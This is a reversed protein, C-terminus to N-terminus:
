SSQSVDVKAARAAQTYDKALTVAVARLKKSAPDNKKGFVQGVKWTNGGERYLEATAREGTGRLSFIRTDGKSCDGIYREGGVCHKMQRGEAQLTAGSTLPTASVGDITRKDILSEWSRARLEVLHRAYAERNAARRAAEREAATAHWHEQARMIGAWTMNKEVSRLNGLHTPNRPTEDGRFWDWALALDGSIFRKLRGRKAAKTAQAGALRLFRVLGECSRAIDAAEPTDSELRRLATVWWTMFSLPATEGAKALLNLGRALNAGPSTTEGYFPEAIIRWLQEIATRSLTALFRWGQPTLAEPGISPVGEYRFRLTGGAAASFLQSKALAVVNQPPAEKTLLSADVHRMYHGVLPMLNPTERARAELVGRHRVTYNYEAMRAKRGFTAFCLTLIERDVLHNWMGAVTCRKASVRVTPQSLRRNAAIELFTSVLSKATHHRALQVQTLKSFCVDAPPVYSALRESWAFRLASLIEADKAWFMPLYQARTKRWQETGRDFRECHLLGSRKSVVIRHYGAFTLVRSAPTESTSVSSINQAFVDGLFASYAAEFPKSRSHLPRHKFPTPPSPM